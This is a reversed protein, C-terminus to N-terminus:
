ALAATPTSLFNFDNDKEKDKKLAQPLSIAAVQVIKCEDVSDFFTRYGRWAGEVLMAALERPGESPNSRCRVIASIYRARGDSEEIRCYPSVPFPTILGIIYNALLRCTRGNGDGFPHISVFEFMLRAACKFIFATYEESDKHKPPSSICVNHHDILTYILSEISEPDPYYHIKNEWTTCVKTKRIEGCNRHLGALLLKHVSCIQQVTILGSKDMDERVEKFKAIANFINITEIWRQDSGRYRKSEKLVEETDERTQTGVDEGYNMDQVYDVTRQALAKEVELSGVTDQYEKRWRTIQQVMSSTTASEKRWEPKEEFDYAAWNSGAISKM